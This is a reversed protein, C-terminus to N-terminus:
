LEDRSSFEWNWKESQGTVKGNCTCFLVCGLGYKSDDFVLFEGKYKKGNELVGWEFMTGEGVFKGRSYRKFVM